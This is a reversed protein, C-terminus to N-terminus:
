EIMRFIYPYHYMGGSKAEMAALYGMMWAFGLFVPALCSFLLTVFCIFMAMFMALQFNLAEKAQDAVFRSRGKLMLWIAIPGIIGLVFVSLHAVMAWRIEEADPDYSETHEDLKIDATSM